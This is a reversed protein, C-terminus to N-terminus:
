QIHWVVTYRLQTQGDCISSSWLTHTFRKKKKMRPWNYLLCSYKYASLVKRHTYLTVKYYTLLIKSSIRLLFQSFQLFHISKQRM